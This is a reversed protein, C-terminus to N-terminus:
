QRRCGNARPHAFRLVPGSRSHRVLLVLGPIWTVVGFPLRRNVIVWGLFPVVLDIVTDHREPPLRRVRVIENAFSGREAAPHRSAILAASPVSTSTDNVSRSPVLPRGTVILSPEPTEIRM